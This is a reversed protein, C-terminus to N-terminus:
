IDGNEKFSADEKMIWEGSLVRMLVEEMPVGSNESFESWSTMQYDDVWWSQRTLEGKVYILVAPGKTNHLKGHKMHAIKNTSTVAPLGNSRHLKGNKDYWKSSTTTYEVKGGCQLNRTGERPQEVITALAQRLETIKNM